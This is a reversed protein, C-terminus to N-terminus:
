KSNKFSPLDVKQEFCISCTSISKFLNWVDSNWRARGMGKEELGAWAGSADREGRGRGSGAPARADAAGSAGRGSVSDRWSRGPCPGPATRWDPGPGVGAGRRM